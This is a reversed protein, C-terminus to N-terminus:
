DCRSAAPGRLKQLARGQIQRVGERTLGLRDGAGQLTLGDRYRLRLVEREREDLDPGSLLGEFDPEDDALRPPDPPCFEGPDSGEFHDISFVPGGPDRMERRWYKMRGIIEHKACRSAFTGFTYGRSEDFGRAANILGDIAADQFDELMGPRNRSMRLAVWHAIGLNAAALRAQDETLKPLGDARRGL